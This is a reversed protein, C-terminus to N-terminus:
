IVWTGYNRHDVCQPVGTANPATWIAAGWGGGVWPRFQFRVSAINDGVAVPVLNAAPTVCTYTNFCDKSVIANSSVGTTADFYRVKTVRIMTGTNNEFSFTIDNCAAFAQSGFSAALLLATVRAIPRITRNM